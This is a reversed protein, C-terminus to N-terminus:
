RKVIVEGVPGPAPFGAPLKAESVMMPKSPEPEAAAPATAAAAAVVLIVTKGLMQSMAEHPLSAASWQYRVLERNGGSAWSVFRRVM